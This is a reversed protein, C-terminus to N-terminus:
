LDLSPLCLCLILSLDLAPTSQSPWAVCEFLKSSFVASATTTCMVLTTHMHAWLISFFVFFGLSKNGEFLLVSHFNGHRLEKDCHYAILRFLWSSLIWTHAWRMAAAEAKNCCLLRTELVSAMSHTQAVWLAGSNFLRMLLLAWWDDYQFTHGRWGGTIVGSHCGCSAPIIAKGCCWVRCFTLM